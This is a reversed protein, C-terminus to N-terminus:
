LASLSQFLFHRALLSAWNLDWIDIYGIFACRSLHNTNLTAHMKVRIDMNELCILQTTHPSIYYISECQGTWVVQDISLLALFQFLFCYSALLQGKIMILLSRCAIPLYLFFNIVALFVTHSGIYHSSLILSCIITGQPGGNLAHLTNLLERSYEESKSYNCNHPWIVPPSLPGGVVHLTALTLGRTWIKQDKVWWQLLQVTKSPSHVTVGLFMLMEITFVSEVYIDATREIRFTWWLVSFNEVVFSSLM